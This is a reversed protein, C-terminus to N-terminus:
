RAEMPPLSIRPKEDGIVFVYNIRTQYLEDREGKITVLTDKRKQGQQDTISTIVGYKGANKGGTLIAIMGKALGIRELIESDSLSIKLTDFIQYIDEEPKQPDNVRILLSRGDHLGLQVHGDKLTHKNEIRVLKFQTEDGDIPHLILGKESPLVRYDKKIEPISVVDMLGIPFLDDTRIKADVAITGKSIVKKAERRTKGKGLVDRVVLGLPLCRDIPHPGSDPKITWNFKKRWIPWFKPAVERKM